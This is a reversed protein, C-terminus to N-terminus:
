DEHKFGKRCEASIPCQNPKWGHWCQPVPRYYDIVEQTTKLPKHYSMNSM